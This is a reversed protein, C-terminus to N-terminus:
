RVFNIEPALNTTGHFGGIGLEFGTDKVPIADPQYQFTTDGLGIDIQAGKIRLDFHRVTGDMGTPFGQPNGLGFQGPPQHRWELDILRFCGQCTQLCGLRFKYSLTRNHLVLQRNQRTHQIKFYRGTAEISQRHRRQRRSAHRRFEQLASRIDALRFRM